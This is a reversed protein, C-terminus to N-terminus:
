LLLVRSFVFFLGYAVLLVVAAQLVRWALRLFKRDRTFAWALVLGLLFLGALSLFLRLLLM